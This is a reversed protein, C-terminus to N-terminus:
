GPEANLPTIYQRFGTGKLVFATYSNEVLEKTEHPPHVGRRMVPDLKEAAQYNRRSEFQPRRVSRNM